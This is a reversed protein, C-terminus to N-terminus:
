GKRRAELAKKALSDSQPFIYKGPLKAELGGKCM